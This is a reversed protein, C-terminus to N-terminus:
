QGDRSGCGMEDVVTATKNRYAWRGTASRSILDLPTAVSGPFGSGAPMMARANRINDAEKGALGSAPLVAM